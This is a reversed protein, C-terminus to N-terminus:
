GRFGGFFSNSGRDSSMFKERVEKLKKKVIENYKAQSVSKGKSPINITEKHEVNLIIKSCLITTNGSSVELILGPLGWYEDPGNSVPIEPTYWATVEVTKPIEIRSLLSTNGLSDKKKINDGIPRNTSKFNTFDTSDVQKVATAKYCVYNGIKKSEATLKWELQQLDDEILFSKGFFETENKYTKEKINKFYIGSGIGLARLFMGGQNQPSSLKEEEKYTSINKNFTLTYTKELLSNMRESIMKKQEESLDIGELNNQMTAKSQYIAKGQFNQLDNTKNAFRFGFIIYSVSLILLCFSWRLIVNKM